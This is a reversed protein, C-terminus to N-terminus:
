FAMGDHHTRYIQPSSSQFISQASNTQDYISQFRLTQYGVPFHQTSLIFSQM